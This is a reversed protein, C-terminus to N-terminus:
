DERPITYWDTHFTVDPFSISGDRMDVRCEYVAHTRGCFEEGYVPAFTRPDLSYTADATSLDDDYQYVRAYVECDWGSAPVVLTDHNDIHLTARDTIINGFFDRAITM